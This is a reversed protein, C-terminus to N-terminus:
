QKPKRPKDAPPTGNLRDFRELDSPDVDVEEGFMGFRHIGSSNLYTGIGTRITRKAM